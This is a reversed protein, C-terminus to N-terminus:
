LQSGTINSVGHVFQKGKVFPNRYGGEEKMEKMSISLDTLADKISLTGRVTLVITKRGRDACISYPVQCVQLIILILVMMIAGGVGGGGGDSYCVVVVMVVVVVVMM